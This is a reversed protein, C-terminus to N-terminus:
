ILHVGGCHLSEYQCRMEAGLLLAAHPAADGIQGSAGKLFRM